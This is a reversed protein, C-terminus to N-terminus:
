RRVRDTKPQPVALAAHTACRTSPQGHRGKEEYERVMQATFCHWLGLPGPAHELSGRASLEQEIRVTYQITATYDTTYDVQRAM